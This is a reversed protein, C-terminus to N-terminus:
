NKKSADYMEITKTTITVATDGRQVYASETTVKRTVNCSSLGFAVALASLAAILASIVAKLIMKSKDSM